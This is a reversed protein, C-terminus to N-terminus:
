DDTSIERGIGIDFAASQDAAIEGTLVARVEADLQLALDGARSEDEADATVNGGSVRDLQVCSAKLDTARRVAAVDVEVAAAREDRSRGRVVARDDVVQREGAMQEGLQTRVAVPEDRGALWGRELEVGRRVGRTQGDEADVARIQKSIVEDLLDLEDRVARRVDEDVDTAGGDVPL